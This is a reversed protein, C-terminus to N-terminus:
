SFLPLPSFAPHHRCFFLQPNMNTLLWEQLLSARANAPDIGLSLSNEPGQRGRVLFRIPYRVSPRHSAFSPNADFYIGRGDSRNALQSDRKKKQSPPFHSFNIKLIGHRFGRGDLIKTWGLGTKWGGDGNIRWWRLIECDAESLLPSQSDGTSDGSAAKVLVGAM